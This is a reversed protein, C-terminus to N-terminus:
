RLLLTPITASRLLDATKSGFVLSRLPSHSYAGMILLDIDQAKVEQAIIHEADGPILQAPADFGASELTKQAWDLQKPTDIKEKGSMLLHVPLGKFLPSAAIMEVGRRTVNSGDFAIMVRQPERFRDTVALIPHSLARVVRELNRGLDRQTTTASEGRRGLVFLRVSAEQEVLTEVLEGHRLRMDPAPHGLASARERLQNLYIRGQERTARSHSEDADSLQNLLNEQASIGIAGSRDSTTQAPRDLIHLLELPAALREAAWAAYDAVHDAFHSRDVCALVKLDNHM